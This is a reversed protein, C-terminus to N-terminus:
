GLNAPPSAEPGRRLLAVVAEPRLPRALLFGQGDDCSLAGLRDLQEATEIGEGVVTMGLAHAMATVSAVIERERGGNDLRQVFSRDIKLVDVRFQSLHALSSYGTGFDDLALHVGLATLANLTERADVAEEILATETIELCLDHAAVGHRGLARTVVDPFDAARLQRGSVNVAVTLGHESRNLMARWESVQRCAEDLVWAGIPVILGREEAVGIFEAPPLLGREPHDWRLLAEVGVIRRDELAFLPQYELRFEGRDLAKVLDMEIAFKAAARDRLAADFFQYHNRGREKAQYMAADADRLVDGASAYPDSTVVVGVSATISLDRGDDVFPECVSRVVRDAIVRVDEDVRLNACLVVFEDGGLRAVTDTRRSISTLRRAVEVLLRDGADHGYTDNVDKFRDLDVFLVAVRGADRELHLLAQSLRDMFLVRNALGTLADHVAQHALETQARRLDTTERTSAVVGCTTGVDDLRPSLHAQFWRQAPGSGLCFDATRSEGTAIVEGLSAEWVALFAEDLGLERDTRGVVDVNLGGVARLAAKNAYRYRLQADYLVIAGSATELVTRLEAEVRSLHAHADALQIATSSAATEAEVLRTIDRSIGFTGVIEGDVNRLPLKTSTVWTDSRDPWTEREQANVLPEGTAVIRQEDAYAKAAHEPTFLDFDTLGILEHAPRRHIAACGRSMRIFRSERDKFYIIEDTADLLNRAFLRELDAESASGAAAASTTPLESM